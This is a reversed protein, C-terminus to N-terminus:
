CTYPENTKSDRMVFYHMELGIDAGRKLVAATTGISAAFSTEAHSDPSLARLLTLVVFTCKAAIPSTSIDQWGDVHEIQFRGSPGDFHIATAEKFLVEIQEKPAVQFFVQLRWRFEDERVLHVARPVRMESETKLLDTWGVCELPSLEFFVDDLLEPEASLEGSMWDIVGLVTPLNEVLQAHNWREDDHEPQLAFVPGELLIPVTGLFHAARQYTEEDQPETALAPFVLWPFLLPPQLPKFQIAYISAELHEIYMSLQVPHAMRWHPETQWIQQVVPLFLLRAYWEDEAPSPFLAGTPLNATQCGTMPWGVEIRTHALLSLDGGSLDQADAAILCAKQAQIRSSPNFAEPAHALDVLVGHRPLDPPAWEPVDFIYLVGPSESWEQYSTWEDQRHLAPGYSTPGSSIFKLDFRPATSARHLAFWLAVDLSHTVDLLHTGPGYHQVIAYYWYAWLDSHALAAKVEMGRQVLMDTALMRCYQRWIREHRLPIRIGTPQMKGHDRYQGRFVRVKGSEPPPLESVYKSLANYDSFSTDTM